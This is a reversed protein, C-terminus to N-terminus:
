EEAAPRPSVSVARQRGALDCVLQVTWPDGLVAAFLAHTATARQAACEVVACGTTALHDRLWDAIRHSHALGGQDSFLALAPEHERIEPALAAREAQDIYPPNAVVVDFRRDGLPAGLDGCLLELRDLVGHHEANRRAVVLAAPSLDTATACLTPLEKLLAIAVCGSGTCLEVLTTVPGRQARALVQEVLLETEPRPILVDPTVEFELSYFEKRGTLYAVPERKGRRLLLQKFTAREDSALPQDFRLYLDLRRLGLGHALLLEADLRPNDVGRKALYTRAADLVAQVTWVENDRAAEMSVM